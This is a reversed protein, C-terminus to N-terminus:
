NEGYLNLKDTMRYFSPGEQMRSQTPREMEGTSDRVYMCVYMIHVYMCVYMCVYMTVVSSYETGTKISTM